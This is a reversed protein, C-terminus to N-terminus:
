ASLCDPNLSSDVNAPADAESRKRNQTTGRDELMRRHALSGTRAFQM